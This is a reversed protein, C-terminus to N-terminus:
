EMEKWPQNLQDPLRPLFGTAEVYSQQVCKFSYAYKESLFFTYVEM